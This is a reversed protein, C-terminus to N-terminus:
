AHRRGHVEQAAIVACGDYFGLTRNGAVVGGQVDAKDRPELLEVRQCPLDIEKPRVDVRTARRRLFVKFVEHATKVLFVLSQTPKVHAVSQKGLFSRVAVIQSRRENFSHLIEAIGERQRGARNGDDNREVVVLVVDAFAEVAQKILREGVKFNDDDVIARGIVADSNDLTVRRFEVPPQLEGLRFRIRAAATSRAIDAQAHCAAFVNEEHVGVVRKDRVAKLFHVREGVFEVGVDDIAFFIERGFADPLFEFVVDANGVNFALLRRENFLRCEFALVHNRADVLRHAKAIPHRCPESEHPAVQQKFVAYLKQRKDAGVIDAPTIM